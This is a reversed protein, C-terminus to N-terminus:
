SPLYVSSCMQIYASSPFLFIKSIRMLFLDAPDIDTVRSIQGQVQVQHLLAKKSPKLLIQGQLPPVAKRNRIM